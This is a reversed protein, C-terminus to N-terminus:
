IERGVGLGLELDYAGFSGILNGLEDREDIPETYLARLSGGVGMGFWRGAVAFHDQRLKEFLEYHGGMMQVGRVRDLGAPNWFAAEVGQGLSAYAGGMASARAGTPVELFAFGASAALAPQAALALSLVLPPLWWSRTTMPSSRCFVVRPAAAAVGRDSM